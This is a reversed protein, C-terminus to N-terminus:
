ARYRNSIVELPELKMIECIDIFFGVTIKGTRALEFLEHVDYNIQKAYQPITMNIRSLFYMVFAHPKFETIPVLNYDQALKVFLNLSLESLRGTEFALCDDIATHLSESFSQLDCDEEIRNRRATLAITDFFIDRNGDFSIIKRSPYFVFDFDNLMPENLFEILDYECFSLIKLLTEVTPKCERRIRYLVSDTIDCELAVEKINLSEFLDSIKYELTSIPLKQCVGYALLMEYLSSIKKINSITSVEFAKIKRRTFKTRHVMDDITEGSRIRKTVCHNRLALLYQDYNEFNYLIPQPNGCLISVNLM